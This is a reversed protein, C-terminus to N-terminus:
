PELIWTLTTLCASYMQHQGSESQLAMLREEKESLIHPKAHLTKQISIKYDKFEPKEIWQNITADDIALLEPTFFSCQSSMQTYAMMVKNYREQNSSESQDAENMLSAYHYVKEVLLSLEDDAKLAALLTDSSESLKGKFAVFKETFSPIRALDAEWDSETKYLQTLDWKHEAPVDKRLPIKENSMALLITFFFCTTVSSKHRTNLHM